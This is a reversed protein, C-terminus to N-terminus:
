RPAVSARMARVLTRGFSTLYGWGVGRASQADLALWLLRARGAVVVETAFLSFLRETTMARYPTLGESDADLPPDSRRERWRAGIGEARREILLLLEESPIAIRGVGFTGERSAPDTVFVAEVEPAARALERLVEELRPAGSGISWLEGGTRDAKSSGPSRSGGALLVLAAAVAGVTMSDDVLCWLSGTESLAVGALTTTTSRVAVFSAGDLLTRRLLDEQVSSVTVSVPFSEVPTTSELVEMWVIGELAVSARRALISRATAPASAPGPPVSQKSRPPPPPTAKAIALEDFAFTLDANYDAYPSSRNLFVTEVSGLSVLARLALEIQHRLSDRVEEFTAVGWAILTEGLPRKERRCSELIERFIEGDIQATELLHRTFALPHRADTAWAVRGRQLHVHVEVVDSACILEGTAAQRALLAIRDLASRDSSM